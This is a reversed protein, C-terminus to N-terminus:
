GAKRWHFRHRVLATVVDGPQPKAFYFGQGLDCGLSELEDLQEPTEIGEATVTLGLAHGMSVVAGVIARDDPDIGLGSVFSRDIKLCDVPLQKLYGLSSHGTGFDDVAIRVGLARLAHLITSALEPDSMLVSETVEVLLTAPDLGFDAIAAAVVGVLDPHALQHASLNVSVVLPDDLPTISRWRAAQACVERLVWEGIPVILGTEEAVPIFEMPAVLGRRPHAWRLLAEFGVVASGSFQVLPQYYIRFEDQRLARHLEKELELREVVRERIREDFVAIGGRGTRRAASLAAHADRVILAPEDRSAVLAIGVTASVFVEATDLGVPEALEDLMRGAIMRAQEADGVDTCWIAFEYGNLRAVCDGFRVVREFRQAIERLLAESAAPGLGDSVTRYQDLDLLVVAAGAGILEPRALTTAIRDVLGDTNLLGTVPDHSAVFACKTELAFRETVDRVVVIVHAPASPDSSGGDDDVPRAVVEVVSSGDHLQASVTQRTALASEILAHEADHRGVLVGLADLGRPDHGLRRRYALNASVFRLGGRGDDSTVSVIATPDLLLDLLAATGPASPDFITDAVRAETM